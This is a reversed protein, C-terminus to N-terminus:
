DLPKRCIVLKCKLDEQNEMFKIPEALDRFEALGAAKFEEVIAADNYYYVSLGNPLKYRNRSIRQGTGPVYAKASVVTFVMLGGPKLHQFCQDLFVKREQRNLLHLLAYCFVGEYLGEDFPMGTVSGYHIRCNMGNERALQIATESIEIGTIDFGQQQFIRANRGYGIGPILIKHIHHESFFQLTFLASDSPEFTWLTANNRFWSEWYEITESFGLDPHKKM